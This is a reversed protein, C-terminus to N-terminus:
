IEPTGVGLVVNTTIADFAWENMGGETAFNLPARKKFAVKECSVFDGRAIDRLVFTNRGWTASSLSQLNYMAQLQANVPSTKLLRVTVTSAEGARLSHMGDGGAGITMTNKDDVAEITVGEEAAGASNGLNISGGPGNLAAVIDKFSYTSM